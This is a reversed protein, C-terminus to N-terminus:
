QLNTVNGANAKTQSHLGTNLQGGIGVILTATAVAGKLTHLHLFILYFKFLSVCVPKM